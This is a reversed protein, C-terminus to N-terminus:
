AYTAAVTKGVGTPGLILVKAGRVERFREDVGTIQIQM